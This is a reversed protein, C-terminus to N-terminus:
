DKRNKWEELRELIEKEEGKIFEKRNRREVEGCLMELAAAAEKLGAKDDLLLNYYLKSKPLSYNRFKNFYPYEPYENISDWPIYNDNLWEVNYKQDKNATYIIFYPNLTRKARRVLEAIRECEEAPKLYPRVTDDLDVAIIIRNHKEYAAKLTEYLDM